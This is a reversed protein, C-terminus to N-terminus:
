RRGHNLDKACGPCVLSLGNLLLNHLHHIQEQQEVRVFLRLRGDCRDCQTVVRYHVPEPDSEEEETDLSEASLLNQPLVLEDLKLDLQKTTPELGIM